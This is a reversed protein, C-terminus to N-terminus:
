KDFPYMKKFFTENYLWTIEEPLAVRKKETRVIEGDNDHTRQVACNFEKTVHDTNQQIFDYVGYLTDLKIESKNVIPTYTQEWQMKKLHAPHINIQNDLM